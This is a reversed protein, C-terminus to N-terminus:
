PDRLVESLRSIFEANSPCKTHRPFYEKWAADERVSWANQLLTRINREVQGGNGAGCAKAAAPYLECTYSQEPDQAHLQICVLLPRYGHPGPRIGLRRLHSEAIQQPDPAAPVDLKRLMDTIRSAASRVQFPKRLFFGINLDQAAQGMYASIHTTVGLIVPPRLPGADELLLLGDTGPLEMDLVLADPRLEQLLSLASSGDCITVQFDQRLASELAAALEKSELLLLVRRM